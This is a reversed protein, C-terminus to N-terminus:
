HKPDNGRNGRGLNMKELTREIGLRTHSFGFASQEEERKVTNMFECRWCNNLKQAYTGQVRGGCLSGAVIWCARGAKQGGHAGDFDHRTTVPCIGLESEKLGGPERGCGKAEWCNLRKM